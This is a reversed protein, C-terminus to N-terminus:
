IANHMNLASEVFDWEESFINGSNFKAFNAWPQLFYIGCFNRGKVRKICVKVFHDCTCLYKLFLVVVVKQELLTVVKHVNHMLPNLYWEIWKKCIRSFLVFIDLLFETWSGMMSKSSKNELKYLLNRWFTEKCLYMRASLLLVKRQNSVLRSLWARIKYCFM